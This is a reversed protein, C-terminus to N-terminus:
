SSAVELTMPVTVIQDGHRFQVWSDYRGAQPFTFAFHITSNDTAPTAAPPSTPAPTNPTMLEILPDGEANRVGSLTLIPSMAGVAHLHAFLDTQRNLVMMHGNMGLWPTVTVPEAGETVTVSLGVPTGATPTGTAQVDVDLGAITRPGLGGVAPIAAPPADAAGVQITTSTLQSGLDTSDGALSRSLEVEIRHEGAASPTYDLLYRGPSVRAPHVHAFDHVSEGIVAVHLLAEHHPRLDDVPTGTSADTLVFELTSAQGAVPPTGLSSVSVNVPALTAPGVTGAVGAPLLPAVSLTIAVALMAIVAPGTAWLAAASVRRWRRRSLVSLTLGGLGIVGASAYFISRAPEAPDGPPVTVTIPIRTSAVAGAKAPLTLEVDWPGLRDVRLQTPYPGDDGALMQVVAEAERPRQQDSPWARLEVAMDSDAAKTLSLDILMIGPVVSVPGIVARLQLTGLDVTVAQPTSTSGGHAWAPQATLLLLITVAAAAIARVTMGRHRNRRATSQRISM